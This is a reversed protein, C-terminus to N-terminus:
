TCRCKNWDYNWYVYGDRLELIIEITYFTLFSSILVISIDLKTKKRFKPDKLDKIFKRRKKLVKPLTESNKAMNASDQGM